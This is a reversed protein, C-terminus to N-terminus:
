APLTGTDEGLLSVEHAGHAAAVERGCLQRILQCVRVPPPDCLRTLPDRRLRASCRSALAPRGPLQLAGGAPVHAPVSAAGAPSPTALSVTAASTSTTACSTSPAPASPPM